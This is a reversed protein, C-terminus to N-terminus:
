KLNRTSPQGMKLDVGTKSSFEQCPKLLATFSGSSVSEDDSCTWINIWMTQVFSGRYCHSLVSSGHARSRLKDGMTGEHLGNEWSFFSFTRTHAHTNVKHGHRVSKSWIPCSSRLPRASSIGSIHRHTEWMRWQLQEYKLNMSPNLGPRLLNLNRRTGTVPGAGENWPHPSFRCGGASCIRCKVHLM